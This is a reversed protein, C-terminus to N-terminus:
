LIDEESEEETPASFDHIESSQSKVLRVSWHNTLKVLSMLGICDPRTATKLVAEQIRKKDYVDSKLSENM